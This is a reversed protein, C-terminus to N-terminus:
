LWLNRQPRQRSSTSIQACHACRTAPGGAAPPPTSGAHISLQRNPFSVPVAPLTPLCMAASGCGPSLLVSSAAQLSILRSITQLSHIAFCKWRRCGAATRGTRQRLHEILALTQYDRAMSSISMYSGRVFCCRRRSRPLGLCAPARCERYMFGSILTKMGASTFKCPQRGELVHRGCLASPTSMVAGDLSSQNLCSTCTSSHCGAANGGFVGRAECARLIRRRASCPKRSFASRKRPRKRPKSFRM